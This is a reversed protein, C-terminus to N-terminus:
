EYFAGQVDLVNNFDTFGKFSRFMNFSEDNLISISGSFPKVIPSRKSSKSNTLPKFSKAVTSVRSLQGFELYQFGLPWEVRPM